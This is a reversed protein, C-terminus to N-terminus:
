DTTVRYVTLDGIKYLQGIGCEYSSRQMNPDGRLAVETRAM